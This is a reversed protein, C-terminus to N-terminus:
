VAAEIAEAERERAFQNTYLDHYRGGRVILDHHTGQEVIHGGDIVLIRDANKITSLRHAIVFSIRGSLVQEIGEQILHETETDVSATAEDMVFIQPDALVARALSILQKQGTSLQSGGEGVEAEYGKEMEMIFEHANVLTAAAEIEEQTADLRGYRINEAITGSFLHPAQLVIGLNSQLWHLGRRRYDIGDILIEGATPEYFRCLLSVITSKGGGTAGVLAITEGARVTFNFGELVMEGEKYAFDVDRFEIREITAPYGDEAVGDPRRDAFEALRAKVEDSDRIDPVTDLLGQIREAAAQAMQVETFRRALEQIPMHFLAAYQMFAILTGLTLGGMEVAIGGRWLALGAGISGLTIVLPLYVASQLANRVSHRYMDTSLYQFEGLNEDERVLTKTTIVGMICENFGATLQSNAKRVARSSHLLKTQFYLSAVLLLPAITLVVLALKWSLIMMLTIIGIILSTGWVLDLMLWALLGSLRTCDSTLRAMLWGVPRTDYYSFPLEQLRAFGRTRIDFALGTSIKGANFIFLWVSIAISLFLVIYIATYAFLMEGGEHAVAADIIKGTVLPLLADVIALVFGMAGMFALRRRYPRAHSLVRRWLGFEIKGSYKENAIADDTM